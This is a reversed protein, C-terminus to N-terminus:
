GANVHPHLSIEDDTTLADGVRESPGLHRAERPLRAKYAVPAGKSDVRPLKVKALVSQVLEDVTMDNPVSPLKFRRQGTVDSVAAPGM